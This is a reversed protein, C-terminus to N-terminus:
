GWSISRTSMETPSQTSGLAMTRDSSNYWHFIWQSQSPDQNTACCSLWQAVATGWRDFYSLSKTIVLESFKSKESKNQTRRNLIWQSQSPDQNTACCSLWQAVATGWSDFYSLSKTIVLESFKSKESKNQTRRNLIDRTNLRKFDCTVTFHGKSRIM